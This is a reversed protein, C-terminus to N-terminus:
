ITLLFNCNTYSPWCQSIQSDKPRFSIGVLIGFDSWRLYQGVFSIKNYIKSMNHYLIDLKFPKTILHSIIKFFPISMCNKTTILNLLKIKTEQKHLKKNNQFFYFWCHIKQQTLRRDYIVPEYPNGELFDKRWLTYFFYYM